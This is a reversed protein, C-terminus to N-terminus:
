SGTGQKNGQSPARRGTEAGILAVTMGKDMIHAGITRYKLLM